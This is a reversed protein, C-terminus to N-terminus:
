EGGESKSPLQVSAANLMKAIRAEAEGFESARLIIVTDGNAIPIGDLLAPSKLYEAVSCLIVIPGMEATPKVLAMWSLKTVAVDESASVKTLVHDLRKGSPIVQEEMKDKSCLIIKVDGESQRPMNPFLKAYSGPPIMVWATQVALPKMEGPKLGASEASYCGCLVAVLGIMAMTTIAKMNKGGYKCSHNTFREQMM